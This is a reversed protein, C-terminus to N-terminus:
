SSTSSQPLAIRSHTLSRLISPRIPCACSSDDFMGNARMLKSLAVMARALEVKQQQVQILILTVLQGFLVNQIPHLM